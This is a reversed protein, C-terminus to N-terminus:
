GMSYIYRSYTYRRAFSSSHLSCLVKLAKTRDAILQFSGLAIFILAYKKLSLNEITQNFLSVRLNESLSRKECSALMEASNDVGDIQFGLRALPLLLRGSGCMAELIPGQVKELIKTYFAVENPCAEPKCIDYFETCLKKYAKKLESPKEM